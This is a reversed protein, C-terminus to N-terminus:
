PIFVGIIPALQGAIELTADGLLIDRLAKFNDVINRYNSEEAGTMFGYEERAHELAALERDIDTVYLGEALADAGGNELIESYFENYDAVFPGFIENFRDSVVSNKEELIEYADTAKEKLEKEKGAKAMANEYYELAKEYDKDTAYGNEYCQGLDYNAKASEDAAAELYRIAKAFDQGIINGTYYEEGLLESAETFGKEASLGLWKISENINQDVGKGYLYYTGVNYMAVSNGIHASDYFCQFAKNYDQIGSEGSAYLCGIDNIEVAADATGAKVFYEAAKEYDPSSLGEGNKYMCGLDFSADVIGNESAKELWMMADAYNPTDMERFCTGTMAMTLFGIRM